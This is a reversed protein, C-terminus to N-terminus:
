WGIVNGNMDTITVITNNFTSLVHAIGSHVNKSGKAKVIKQKGVVDASLSLNEPAAAAVPASEEKKKKPAKKAPKAEPKAEATAPKKSAEASVAGGAAEEGTTAAPKDEASDTPGAVTAPKETKPTEGAAAPDTPDSSEAM